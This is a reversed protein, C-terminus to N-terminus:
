GAPLIIHYWDYLLHHYYSKDMRIIKEQQDENNTKPLPDTQNENNLLSDVKGTGILRSAQRLHITIM